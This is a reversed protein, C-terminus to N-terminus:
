LQLPIALLLGGYDMGDSARKFFSFITLIIEVELKGNIILYSNLNSIAFSIFVIGYM